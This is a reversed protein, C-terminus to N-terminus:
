YIQTSPSEWWSLSDCAQHASCTGSEAHLSFAFSLSFIASSFSASLTASLILFLNQTNIVFLWRMKEKTELFFGLSQKM